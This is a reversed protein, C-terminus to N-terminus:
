GNQRYDAAAQRKRDRKSPEPKRSEIVEAALQRHLDVYIKKRRSRADMIWRKTM